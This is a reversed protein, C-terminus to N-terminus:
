GKTTEGLAYTVADEFTMSRGGEWAATWEAESVRSRAAALYTERLSRARSALQYGATERLAQAAGFLRAVRGAKERAVTACALGELSEAGGLTDGLEGCLILSEELLVEAKQHDGGILASWGLNDLAAQLLSKRGRRRYLSM